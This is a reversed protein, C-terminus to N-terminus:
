NDTEKRHQEICRGLSRTIQWFRAKSTNANAYGMRQAIERHPLDELWHDVLEKAADKLLALCKKLLQITHEFQEDTETNPQIGLLRFLREKENKEHLSLIMNRCVQILYTSVKTASPQIKGQGANELLVILADMFVDEAAEKKALRHKILNRVCVKRDEHYVKELVATAGDTWLKELFDALTMLATNIFLFHHYFYIALRLNM